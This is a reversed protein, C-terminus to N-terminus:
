VPLSVVNRGLSPFPLRFAMYDAQARDHNHIVLVYIELIHVLDVLQQFAVQNLLYLHVMTGSDLHRMYRSLAQM